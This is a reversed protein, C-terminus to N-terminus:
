PNDFRINDYAGQKQIIRQDWVQFDFFLHFCFDGSVGLSM